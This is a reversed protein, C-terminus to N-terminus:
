KALICFKSCLLVDSNEPTSEPSLLPFPHIKTHQSEAVSAWPKWIEVSSGVRFSEVSKLSEPSPPWFQFIIIIQSESERLNKCLAVGPLPHQRSASPHLIIHVIRMHLDASTTPQRRWLTLSTTSRSYYDSARAALGSRRFKRKEPSLDVGNSLPDTSKPPLVPVALRLAHATTIPRFPFPPRTKPNAPETVLRQQIAQASLLRPQKQTQFASAFSPNPRTNKVPDPERPRKNM